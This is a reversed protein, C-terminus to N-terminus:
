EIVEDAADLLGIRETNVFNKELRLRVDAAAMAAEASESDLSDCTGVPDSFNNIFSWNPVHTPFSVM